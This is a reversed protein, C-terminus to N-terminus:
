MRVYNWSWDEWCAALGAKVPNNVVYSIIRQSEAESRIVHDYSEDQWFAGERGLLLNAQRATHRKLSHMIAPLAPFSGDTRPLPMFVVHLHNPMICFAILRYVEGDRFHLSDAVLQAIRVDSLWFPGHETAHLEADWEGFLRQQELYAQEARERLDAIRELFVDSRDAEAKLRLIAEQPLSGALRTTLFLTAGPPQYHPLHRRYFLRHDSPPHSPMGDCEEGLTPRSPM